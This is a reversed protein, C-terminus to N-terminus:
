IGITPAGIQLFLPLTLDDIPRIREDDEDCEFPGQPGQLEIRGNSRRIVQHAVGAFSVWQNTLWEEYLVLNKM